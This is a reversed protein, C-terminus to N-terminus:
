DQTERRPSYVKRYVILRFSRGDGGIEARISSVTFPLACGWSVRTAPRWRRAPLTGVFGPAPDHVLRHVDAGSDGAGRQLTGGFALEAAGVGERCPALARDITAASPALVGARGGPQARAQLPAGDGKIAQRMAPRVSGM